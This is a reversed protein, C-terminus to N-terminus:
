WSRYKSWGKKNKAFCDAVQTLYKQANEEKPISGKITEEIAHKMIMLSMCNSHEWKEYYAREKTTSSDILAASPETWIAFDLDMYDLVIM